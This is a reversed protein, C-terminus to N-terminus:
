EYHLKTLDMFNVPYPTYGKLDRRSAVVLNPDLTFVSVADETLLKEAEKYLEARKEQDNEDAAEKIIEDYETNSYRVFNRRYTTTYRLLIDYPDLKGALGVVTTQYEANSYVDELWAGWEVLKIEAKVGVKKLQESIIQATDIHPQYNSPVTITVAFGDPYGAVALLAKAREVDYPYYNELADNYYFGMVPSFGTYLPTGYGDFAGQIIEDRNIAYNMAQRVRIDDFPKVTNNLAFLCVMNQPFSYIDFDRELVPANVASVNAIDLQGSELATVAASEDSIIYFEAKEISPAEGYYEDFREMVIKEGPTYSVFRYPGAGVPKTESMTYGAPMLAIKAIPLFAADASELKVEVTNEDVAKVSEIMTMKSYLAEEGNLGALREYWYVVDESTFKEGNHFLVDDRLHFTYARGDESIDWSTALAPIIEGKENYDVLGRYINHMVADTDAAASKYPDLSDPEAGTRTRVLSIDNDIKSEKKGGASLPSLALMAILMISLIKRM